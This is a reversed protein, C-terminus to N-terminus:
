RKYDTPSLGTRKKFIGSFYHEDCFGLKFAIEKVSFLTNKLLYEAKKIRAGMYYDYPTLGYENKFIRITQEECKHILSALDKMALKEYINKDIYNKIIAAETPRKETPQAKSALLQLLEHFLISVRASIEKVTLSKDSLTKHMKEILAESNCRFIVTKSIGYAESLADILPGKANFWIKVWPNEADSYYYHDEGPHLFYTDGECATFKQGSTHITGIGRMVYEICCIDSKARRIEYSGDCYSIGALEISFPLNDDFVPADIFIEMMDINRVKKDPFNM